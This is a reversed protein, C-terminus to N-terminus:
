QELYKKLVELLRDVDSHENFFNVSLRINQNRIAAFVKNDNLYSLVKQNDHGPINISVIGTREEKKALPSKIEVPLDALKEVLYGTTELIRERIQKFGINIMYEFATKAGSLVQHNTTGFEYQRATEYQKFKENKQVPIFDYGPPLVSLWGTIPAPFQKRYGPSTFFLSGVHGACGWKHLSAAMVDIHMKEVDVPFVPFGQTANVIYLLEREKAKKGLKELDQRFGTSYNVYSTVIAKTDGDVSGLIHDVPYRNDPLPNVYRVDINQGEFPVNTAPFEDYMTVINFKGTFARKLSLAVLSLAVSTNPLFVLNDGGTNIMKGLTNCFKRVDEADEEWSIDGYHSLRNYMGCIKEYVPLPLPSMGASQFFAINNTVPFDKRIKDWDVNKTMNNQKQIFKTGLFDREPLLSPLFNSVPNYLLSNNRKTESLFEARDNLKNVFLLLVSLIFATKIIGAPIGAIRNFINLHIIKLINEVIKALIFVIVLVVIFVILFTIIKVAMVNIDLLGEVILGAINAALIALFIGIILGAISAAEVIFGKRFGRIAGIVLPIALIIDLYNM